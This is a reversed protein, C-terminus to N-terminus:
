LLTSFARRAGGSIIPAVRGDVSRYSGGGKAMDGECEWGEEAEGSM